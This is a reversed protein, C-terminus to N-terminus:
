SIRRAVGADCIDVHQVRLDLREGARQRCVRQEGHEFTVANRGGLHTRGRGADAVWADQRAALGDRDLMRPETAHRIDHPRANRDPERVGARSVEARGGRHALVVREHVALPEPVARGADILQAGVAHDLPTYWWFELSAARNDRGPSGREFVTPSEFEELPNPGSRVM